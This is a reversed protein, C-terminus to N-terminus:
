LGPGPYIELDAFRATRDFFRLNISGVPGNRHKAVIIEAIGKKESDEEYKDERYIFVVVDADQEISGSERLDSLMPKHDARSEVARSLQSLAVVPVNLERALGKLGRSIESIEQVRNETRRSSMLQLYDVVIMDLGQEAQLRRAKSRIDMISASATDDIYIPAESLRGFARSIRDWEGDDIQGLRLRHTDVGTEMSLIRQVLQEASMELSFIGVTRGHVVAAGYAMGLALSTNHVCVDDAIFNAGDPVTLDYVHQDGIEEIAVIEDWYLDNSAALRLGDDDLVAAYGALRRRPISRLCHPNTSPFGARRGLETLSLHKAACRNRVITWVLRPPHGNNSRRSGDRVVRFERSAKAGIWGIETVFRDVSEPETVEVRWSAATKQWLKSVIGFRLFAHQVDRALDESAVTFEIRPFGALPYVTGDCSVLVRLFEGLSSRDWTWVVDPFRKYHASKGWLGHDRLIQTVPNADQKGRWDPRAVAYTVREQRIALGPFQERIIALFDDIIVPDANSFQPVTGTLGGEAVYYALLRALWAPPTVAGFLPVVRPVAIADGVKLESLPRWGTATLFPHHLTVEVRRGTRTTVRACPKVGSDIWDGVSTSRVQGLSSVGLVKSLRTHVAQEITLRAGSDPDDILSQATLCKGMSPRAAVIILDSRQMGGTLQDLDAYGTAVGVVEGRHQQLYDIQDFFRDLVEGMSVFDRSQRSQSVDFIAREAADLAEETEIGERFGIDVIRTGADILRRLIAAREVIRAYYEVHVATPVANLLSSLYSLGGAQDYQGRRQLEDSLTVFDTPERRNYLDLIARYILENAVSYFAEPRLFAAVKIIADRDILLSGLVSQEAELNHPPLREIVNVSTSTAAM